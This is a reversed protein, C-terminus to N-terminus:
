GEDSYTEVEILQEREQIRREIADTTYESILTCRPCETDTEDLEFGCVECTAPETGAKGIPALIDMLRMSVDGTLSLNFRDHPDIATLRNYPTRKEFETVSLGCVSEIEALERGRKGVQVRGVVSAGETLGRMMRPHVAVDSPDRRFSFNPNRLVGSGNPLRKLVGSVTEAM